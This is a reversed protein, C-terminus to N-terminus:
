DSDIGQGPAIIKEFADAHRGIRQLEAKIDRSPEEDWWSKFEDFVHSIKLDSKKNLGGVFYFFADLRTSKLRGQRSEVRWFKPGKPKAPDDPKEDFSRRPRRIRGISNTALDAARRQISVILLM